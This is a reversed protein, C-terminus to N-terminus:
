GFVRFCRCVQAAAGVAVNVLNFEETLEEMAERPCQRTRNAAGAEELRAQM